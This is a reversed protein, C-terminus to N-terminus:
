VVSKRDQMVLVCKEAGVHELLRELNDVHDVLRYPYDQPKDSLGCGLHDPVICRYSDRLASVLNRYLYSWTPNGHLFVLLRGKGEDLYSLNYGGPLCFSDPTFPYQSLSLPVAVM